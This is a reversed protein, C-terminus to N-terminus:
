RGPARRRGNDGVDIAFISAGVNDAAFLVGGPGFALAGVSKIAPTGVSLGLNELSTATGLDVM